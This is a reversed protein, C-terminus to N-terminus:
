DMKSFMFRLLNELDKKSMNEIGDVLDAINEGRQKELLQSRTELEDSIADAKRNDMRNLDTAMKHYHAANKRGMNIANVYTIAEILEM